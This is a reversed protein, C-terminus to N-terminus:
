LILCGTEKNTMREGVRTAKILGEPNETPPHFLILAGLHFLNVIRFPKKNRFSCGSKGMTKMQSNIREVTANRVSLESREIGLLHQYLTNDRM